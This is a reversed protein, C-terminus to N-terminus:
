EPFAPHDRCKQVCARLDADELKAVMDAIEKEPVDFPWSKPWDGTDGTAVADM